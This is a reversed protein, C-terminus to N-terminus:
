FEREVSIGAGFPSPTFSVKAEGRPATVVLITGAVAGAVGVGWALANAGLLPKAQDILRRGEASCRKDPCAADIDAKRSLLMGGTVGAGIFGAAGVGLVAFGAIRRKEAASRRPAMDPPADPPSSEGDRRSVAVARREGAKVTVATEARAGGAPTVAIVHRGPDVRLEALAARDIAKDDVEVPADPGFSADVRVALTAVQASLEAMRKRAFAVREDGADLIALARRLRDVALLPHHDHAACEALNLLTGPREVLRLSEELKPCGAAYDGKELLARAELFLREAAPAPGPGPGQALASQGILLAAAAVPACLYRSRVM